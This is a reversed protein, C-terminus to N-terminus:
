FIWCLHVRIILCLDASDTGMSLRKNAFTMCAQQILFPCIPMCTFNSWFENSMLSFTFNWRLMSFALHLAFKFPIYILITSLISIWVDLFYLFSLVRIFNTSNGVGKSLVTSISRFFIYYSAFWVLFFYPETLCRM